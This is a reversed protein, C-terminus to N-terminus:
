SRPEASLACSPRTESIVSLTASSSARHGAAMSHAPEAREASTVGDGSRSHRRGRAPREARAPDVAHRSCSAAQAAPRAPPLALVEGSDDNLDFVAVITRKRRLVVYRTGEHEIIYSDRAAPRVLKTPWEDHEDIGAYARIAEELVEAEWEAYREAQTATTYELEGRDIREAIGQGGYVEFDNDFEEGVAQEVMRQRENTLANAWAAADFELEGYRTYTYAVYVKEPEASSPRHSRAEIVKRRAKAYPEGTEAMRQYIETKQNTNTM